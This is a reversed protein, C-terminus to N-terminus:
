GLMMVLLTVSTFEAKSLSTVQLRIHLWVRLTGGNIDTDRLHNRINVDEFHFKTRM